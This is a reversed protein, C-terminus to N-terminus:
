KSGQGLLAFSIGTVILIVGFASLVDVRKGIYVVMILLTFLPALSALASILHAHKCTKIAIFYLYQPVVLALAVILLLAIETNISLLGVEERISKSELLLVVVSVAGYVLGCIVFLLKSSVSELVLKEVVTIVGYIASITLAIIYPFMKRGRQFMNVSFTSVGFCSQRSRKNQPNPNSVCAFVSPVVQVDMFVLAISSALLV